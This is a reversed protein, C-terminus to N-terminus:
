KSEGWKAKAGRPPKKKESFVTVTRM